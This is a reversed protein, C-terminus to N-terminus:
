YPYTPTRRCFIVTLSEGAAIDGNITRAMGEHCYTSTGSACWFSTFSLGFAGSYTLGLTTCGNPFLSESSQSLAEIKEFRLSSFEQAGENNLVFNFTAFWVITMVAIGGVIWKKFRKVAIGAIVLAAIVGISRKKM